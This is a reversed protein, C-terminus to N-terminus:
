QNYQSMGWERDVFIKCFDGTRFYVGEGKRGNHGDIPSKKLKGLGFDSM